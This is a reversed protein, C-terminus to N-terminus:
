GVNALTSANVTFDDVWVDQAADWGGDAVLQIGTVADSGLQALAQGYTGYFPGGFQTLDWRTDSGGIVNGTSQWADLASPCDFNPVNGIYVNVTGDPTGNGNTDVDIQFRPSGGFCGGTQVDYDTQLTSLGGFPLRRTQSYAIGSFPTSGDSKLSYVNHRDPPLTARTAAGFRTNLERGNAVPDDVWVDQNGGVAWGGDAVLSIDTVKASGYAANTHAYSDYFTGGPLQSTDFRLDPSGILNGTSVWHGVARDCSFSPADGLYVFIHGDVTGDGDRDLALSFRPSGGGCNGAQVNYDTQLQTLGGFTVDQPRSIGSFDDSSSANGTNSVLDTVNSRTVPSVRVAGGFKGFDAAAASGAGLALAGAACLVLVGLKRM